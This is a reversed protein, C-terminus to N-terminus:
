TEQLERVVDGWTLRIERERERPWFDVQDGFNTIWGQIKRMKAKSPKKNELM